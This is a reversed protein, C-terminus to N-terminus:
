NVLNLEFLSVIEVHPSFLFQDIPQVWKLQYNNEILIKADRVFTNINCSISIVIPVKSLTINLFQSRAGSRPPDIIIANFKKLEESTLPNSKLNRSQSIVKNGYGQRKSAINIANISKDDIEYANITYGKSLLPITITGSGSFLECVLKKKNIKELGKIVTNIIANEGDITAQLFSGPPPFIKSSYVHNSLSTNEKVFLLDNPQNLQSRNLRIVNTKMMAENFKTLEKYPIKDIGDILLDIGHDLVNAHINITQGIRLIKSIPEKIEKILNTLQDDLIICEDIESIFHSKYEYFGIVTGLKTKKAVFKAHRRSKLSSVLMEKIEGDSSIIKIQSSVKKAKWSSYNKFNWHQLTCGGCKFFHKCKPEVRDPSLQKLEILEARVGDSSLYTPKALILEHPLSFPVFFNYNQEKYDIETFLKAVGEGRSGIYDITLIQPDFNRSLKKEKSMKFTRKFKAM